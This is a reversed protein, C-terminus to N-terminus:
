TSRAGSRRGPGHPARAAQRDDAYKATLSDSLYPDLLLHHGAWQVLFGAQGLWWLRLHDDGSARGAAVDALLEDDRQLPEILTTM